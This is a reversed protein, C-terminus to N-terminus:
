PIFIAACPQNTADIKQMPHLPEVPVFVGGFVGTSTVNGRDADVSVSVEDAGSSSRAVGGGAGPGVGSELAFALLTPITKSFGM